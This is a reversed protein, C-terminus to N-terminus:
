RRIRGRLAANRASGAIRGTRRAAARGPQTALPCARQRAPVTATAQGPLSVQVPEAQAHSLDTAVRDLSTALGAAFTVATGGLLIAVLTVLTRAPRAFPAALGITM